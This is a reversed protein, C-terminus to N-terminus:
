ESVLLTVAALAVAGYVLALYKVVYHHLAEGITFALLLAVVDLALFLCAYKFFLVRVPVKEPPLHEGCAYPALKGTSQPPRPATWRHFMYVAIALTLAAAVVALLTLM